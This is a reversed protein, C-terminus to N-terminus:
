LNIFSCLKKENIKINEVIKDYDYINKYEQIWKTDICYYKKPNSINKLTLKLQKEIKKKNEYLGKLNKVIEM